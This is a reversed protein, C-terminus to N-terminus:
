HIVIFIRQKPVQNFHICWIILQNIIIFIFLNMSHHCGHIDLVGVTSRSPQDRSFTSISLSPDDAMLKSFIRDVGRFLEISTLIDLMVFYCTVMLM